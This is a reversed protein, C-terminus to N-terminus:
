VNKNEAQQLYFQHLELVKKQLHPLNQALDTDNNIVDDAWKLRAQQSVQSNMIRQIQEFNNNDRQASRALQTQPSVDVVLIRDCLATLKNEILLPVVFLTYPATQESLQQKMRERIAPHLLNNLWQKEEDHHFVIERLAARNLEGQKTLIQAGFHEVIKSLLPSGKAVVERAVVDADVLPVGLDAFLNAITTKGSGIGGTLGVIYTM